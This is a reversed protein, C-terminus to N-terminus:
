TTATNYASRLKEMSSIAATLAIQGRAYVSIVPFLVFVTFWFLLMLGLVTNKFIKCGNLLKASTLTKSNSFHM